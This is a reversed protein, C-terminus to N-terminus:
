TFYSLLLFFFTLQVNYWTSTGFIVMLFLVFIHTETLIFKNYYICLFLFCERIFWFSRLLFSPLLYNYLYIHFYVGSSILDKLFQILFNFRLFLLSSLFMFYLFLINSLFFVNCFVLLFRYGRCMTFNWYFYLSIFTFYVDNLSLSQLWYSRCFTGFNFFYM